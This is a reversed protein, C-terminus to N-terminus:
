SASVFSTCVAKIDKCLWQLLNRQRFEHAVPPWRTPKGSEVQRARKGVGSVDTDGHRLHRVCQAALQLVATERLSGDM